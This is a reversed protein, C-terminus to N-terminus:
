CIEVKIKEIRRLSVAMTTLKLNKFKIIEGVAPFEKRIELLVGALSEADGKIEDFFTNDINLTKCVDDIFTKGDFIVINKSIIKCSNNEVDEDFEDNIEGVIEELIDQMTVLGSIGGFEDSVAAIHKKNQQFYKLLESIKKNEPVFTIRKILNNWNFDDNQSVFKILDKVYVVGFINDPTEEYVPIRSFNSQKIIIKLHSFSANKEVGVIDHRPTMIENVEIDGFSLINKLMKNEDANKNAAGIANYIEESNNQKRNSGLSAILSFPKMFFCIIPIIFCSRLAFKEKRNDSMIRFPLESVMVILFVVVLIFCATPFFPAPSLDIFATYELFPNCSCKILAIVSMSFILTSITEAIALSNLIYKKKDLLKFTQKASRTQTKKLNEIINNNLGSFACRCTALWGIILLIFFMFVLLWIAGQPLPTHIINLFFEM